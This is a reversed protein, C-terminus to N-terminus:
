RTAAPAMTAPRGIMPLWIHDRSVVAPGLSAGALDVGDLSAGTLDADDLTAGLLTAGALSAERLDAGRLHARTLDAGKLDAGRLIARSLDAGRLCAGSLAAGTLDAGALNVDTLDTTRLRARMLRANAFSAGRMRSQGFNAEILLADDFDAGWLATRRLDLGNTGSRGLVSLVSQIETSPELSAQGKGAHTRVYAALLDMAPARYSASERALQELAYIAGLRAELSADGSEGGALMDVASRWRDTMPGTLQASAVVSTAARQTRWNMVLAPVTVLIVAADVAADFLM